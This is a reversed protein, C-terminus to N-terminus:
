DIELTFRILFSKLPVDDSIKRMLVKTSRISGWDPNSDFGAGQGRLRNENESVTGIIIERGLNPEGHQNNKYFSFRSGQVFGEFPDEPDSEPVIVLNPENPVYDEQYIYLTDSRIEIERGTEGNWNMDIVFYWCQWMGQLNPIPLEALVVHISFISTLFLFLALTLSVKLKNM